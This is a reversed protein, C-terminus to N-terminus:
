NYLDDDDDAAAPQAAAFAGPGATGGAPAVGGGVGGEPFKFDNGFGRSQQTVRDRPIYCDRVEGFESFIEFLQEKRRPGLRM